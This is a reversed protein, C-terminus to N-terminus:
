TSHADLKQRWVPLQETYKYLQIIHITNRYIKTVTKITVVLHYVFVPKIAYENYSLCYHQQM